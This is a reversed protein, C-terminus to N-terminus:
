RSAGPLVELRELVGDWLGDRRLLAEVAERVAGRGGPQSCVFTVSRRVEPAADAPAASFGAARIPPLDSLDDGVYAVATAPIGLRERLARVAGAKDKSGQVVERIGLEAARRSVVASSRGTVIAPVIGALTLLHVGMGDRAHFSKWETGDESYTITGDTLTGDVDMVFLRVRGPAAASESTPAARLPDV